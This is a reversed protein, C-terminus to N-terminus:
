RLLGVDFELVGSCLFWNYIEPLEKGVAGNELAVSFNGGEGNERSILSSVLM